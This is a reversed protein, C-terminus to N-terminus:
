SEELAYTVDVAAEAALQGPHVPPPADTSALLSGFVPRHLGGTEQEVVKEVAGLRLGLAGAYAEARRRADAAALRRAEAVAPNDDALQWWPGQVHAGAREVAAKLLAPLPEPDALRLTLRNAARQRTRTGGEGDYDHHEYVAIGATSRAEEAIEFEDCVQELAASREAVDAFAEAAAERVAAVELMVVAEDPRGSASGRGRVVITAM